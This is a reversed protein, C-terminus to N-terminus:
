VAATGDRWLQPKAIEGDRACAWVTSSHDNDDRSKDNNVSCEADGKERGPSAAQPDVTQPGCELEQGRM